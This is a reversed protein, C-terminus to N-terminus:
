RALIKKRKLPGERALKKLLTIIIGGVALTMWFNVKMFRDM